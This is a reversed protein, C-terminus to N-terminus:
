EEVAMNFGLVVQGLESSNAMCSAEYSPDYQIRFALWDYDNQDASIEVKAFSNRDGISEAIIRGWAGAYSPGQNAGAGYVYLYFKQAAFGNCRANDSGKNLWAIAAKLAKGKNKINAIRFFIDNSGPEVFKRLDGNWYRSYLSHNYAKQYDFALYRYSPANNSVNGSPVGSVSHGFSTLLLAKVVEPHWRYFPNTALLNSVMGATYATAVETGDYYPQKVVSCTLDGVPCGPPTYARAREKKVQLRSYNYIEPKDLRPYSAHDLSIGTYNTVKHNQDIAGVTIANTAYSRAYMMPVNNTRGFNGSPVFEVTRNEYIYDDLLRADSNYGTYGLNKNNNRVGIYVQPKTLSGDGGGPNTTIVNGKGVYIVSRSMNNAGHTSAAKILSYTRSERLENEHTPVYVNNPSGNRIYGAFKGDYEWGSHVPLADAGMFVGVESSTNDFWDADNTPAMSFDRKVVDLDRYRYLGSEYDSPQLNPNVWNPDGHVFNYGNQESNSFGQYSANVYRFPDTHAWYFGVYNTAHPHDTVSTPMPAQNEFIKLNTAVANNVLKKYQSWSYCPTRYSPCADEPENSSSTWKKFAFPKFRYLDNTNEQNSPEFIGEIAVVNSKLGPGTKALSRNELSSGLKQQENNKAKSYDVNRYVMPSNMKSGKRGLLDYNNTAAISSVCGLALAISIIEKNM